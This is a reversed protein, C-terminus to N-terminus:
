VSYVLPLGFWQITFLHGTQWLKLRSSHQPRGVTGTIASCSPSSVRAPLCAMPRSDTSGTLVGSCFSSARISDHFSESHHFSNRPASSSVPLPVTSNTISPKKIFPPTVNKPPGGSPPFDSTPIDTALANVVPLGSNPFSLTMSGLGTSQSAASPPSLPKFIRQLFNRIVGSLFLNIHLVNFWPM